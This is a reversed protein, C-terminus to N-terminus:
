RCLYNVTFTEVLASLEIKEVTNCLLTLIPCYQYTLPEQMQEMQYPDTVFEM